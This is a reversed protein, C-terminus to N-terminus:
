KVPFSVDSSSDGSHNQLCLEHADHIQQITEEIEKQFRTCDEPSSPMFPPEVATNFLKGGVWVHGALAAQPLTFILGIAALHFPSMTRDHSQQPENHNCQCPVAMCPLAAYMM